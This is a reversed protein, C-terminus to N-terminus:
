DVFELDANDLEEEYLYLDKLKNLYCPKTLRFAKSLIPCLKKENKKYISPFM